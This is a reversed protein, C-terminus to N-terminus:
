YDRKGFDLAINRESIVRTPEVDAIRSESRRLRNLPEIKFM